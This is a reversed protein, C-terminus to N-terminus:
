LNALYKKKLIKRFQISNIKLVHNQAGVEQIVHENPDLIVALLSLFKGSAKYIEDCHLGSKDCTSLKHHVLEHGEPTVNSMKPQGGQVKVEPPRFGRFVDSTM